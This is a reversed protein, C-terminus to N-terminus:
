PYRTGFSLQMLEREIMTIADRLCPVYTPAAIVERKRGRTRGTM